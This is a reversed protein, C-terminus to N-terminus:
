PFTIISYEIALDLTGTGTTFNVNGVTGIILPQNIITNAAQNTTTVYATLGVLMADTSSTVLTATGAMRISTTGVRLNLAAGLLYATNGTSNIRFNGSNVLFFSKTGPAGVLTIPTSGLGLIESSSLRRIVVNGLGSARQLSTQYGFASLTMLDIRDGPYLVITNFPSANGFTGTPTTVTVNFTGNPSNIFTISKDTIGNPNPATIAIAAAGPQTDVLITQNLNTSTLVIGSTDIYNTNTTNLTNIEGNLFTIDSSLNANGLVSDINSSNEYKNNISNTPGYQQM